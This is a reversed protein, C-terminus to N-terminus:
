LYVSESIIKVPGDATFRIVSLWRISPDAVGSVIIRDGSVTVPAFAVLTSYAALTSVRAQFAGDSVRFVAGDMEPYELYGEPTVFSAAKEGDNAQFAALYEDLLAVMEAQRDTLAEGGPVVYAQPETTAPQTTTVAATTSPAPAGTTTVTPASSAPEDAPAPTNLAEEASSLSAELDVIRNELEAERSGDTSDGCGAAGLLLPICVTAALATVRCPKRIAM